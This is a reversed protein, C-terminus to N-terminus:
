RTTRCPGQKAPHCTWTQADVALTPSVRIKICCHEPQQGPFTGTPPSDAQGRSLGASSPPGTPGLSTLHTAM